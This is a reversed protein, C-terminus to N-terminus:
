IQTIIKAKSLEKASAWAKPATMRFEISNMQKDLYNRFLKERPDLHGVSFFGAPVSIM